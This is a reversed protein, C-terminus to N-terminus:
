HVLSSGDITFRQRTTRPNAAEFELDNKQHSFLTSVARKARVLLVIGNYRDTSYSSQTSFRCM